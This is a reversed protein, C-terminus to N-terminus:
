KFVVYESAQAYDVASGSGSCKGQIQRQQPQSELKYVLMYQETTSQHNCGSAVVYDYSLGADGSAAARQNTSAMPERPLSSLYKPVLAAELVSWSGDSTTAWAIGLQKPSPCSSGCASAPFRGHDIYYMELATVITKVDQVRQADRARAQVGNYAVVGITALIAIVVITILLEIITFGHTNKNM